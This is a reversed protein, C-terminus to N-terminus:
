KWSCINSDSDDSLICAIITHLLWNLHPFLSVLYLSSKLSSISSFAVSPDVEKWSIDKVEPWICSITCISHKIHIILHILETKFNWKLFLPSFVGVVWHLRWCNIWFPDTRKNPNKPSINRKHNQGIFSSYIEPTFHDTETPSQPFAYPKQKNLFINTVYM